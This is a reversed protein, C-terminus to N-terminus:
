PCCFEPNQDIQRKTQKQKPSQVWFGLFQSENEPLWKNVRNEVTANRSEDNSNPCKEVDVVMVLVLM